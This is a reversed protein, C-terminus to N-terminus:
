QCVVSDQKPYYYVFANCHENKEVVGGFTYCCDLNAAPTMYKMADYDNLGKCGIAAEPEKWQFDCTYYIGSMAPVTVDLEPSHKMPPDDWKDSTYFSDTEPPTGATKGDWKYIEFKTGRSHFHGNAGIIHVPDPSNIQCGGGFEPTPNKECIRISQKTAFITGLEFKKDADPINFFNVRVKAAGKTKQTTANVFHTQLMIWEDPLLVNAVGEPYTWDINGEQQSNAILPWDSWNPSKFCEGVGGQAKQVVGNKPDLGKLTAVRFINMHHSGERQAVQVQHLNVPKTPDLGGKTALDSVKFFYCDQEEVGAAVDTEETEFQFGKGAAPPTLLSPDTPGADAGGGGGSGSSTSGTGTTSDPGCGVVIVAGMFLSAVTLAAIRTRM